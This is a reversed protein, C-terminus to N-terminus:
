SSFFQKKSKVVFRISLWQRIFSPSLVSAIKSNLNSYKHGPNRETLPSQNFHATTHPVLSCLQPSTKNIEWLFTVGRRKPHRWEKQLQHACRSQAQLLNLLKRFPTKNNNWLEKWNNKPPMKEVQKQVQFTVYDVM